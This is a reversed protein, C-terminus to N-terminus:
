DNNEPDSSPPLKYTLTEGNAMSFSVQVETNFNPHNNAKIEIYLYLELLRDLSDCNRIILKQTGVM